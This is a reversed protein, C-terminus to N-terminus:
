ATSKKDATPHAISLGDQASPNARRFSMETIERLTAREECYYSEQKLRKWHRLSLVTLAALFVGGVTLGVGLGIKTSESFGPQGQDSPNPNGISAHTTM